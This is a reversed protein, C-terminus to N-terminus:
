HYPPPDDNNKKGDIVHFTHKRKRSTQKRRNSRFMARWDNPPFKYLLFISGLVIIAIVLTKAMRSILGIAILIFITYTWIQQGRYRM